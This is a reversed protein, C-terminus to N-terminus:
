RLAQRSLRPYAPQLPRVGEARWARALGIARCASEATLPKALINNFREPLDVLDTSWAVIFQDKPLRVAVEDGTLGPMHRDLCILDFGELAAAMLAEEGSDVAQVACGLHGFIEEFVLRNIPHDDAVLVRFLEPM